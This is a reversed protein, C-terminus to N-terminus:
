ILKYEKGKHLYALGEDVMAKLLAKVEDSLKEAEDVSIPFKKKFEEFFEKDVVYLSVAAVSNEKIYEELPKEAYEKAKRAEMIKETKLRNLLRDKIRRAQRKIESKQVISINKLSAELFMIKAEINKIKLELNKIKSILENVKNIVDNIKADLLNYRENIKSIIIFQIKEEGKHIAEHEEKITSKTRLEKFSSASKKLFIHKEINQSVSYGLDSKIILGKEKLRYLIARTRTYSIGLAHAIEKLKAGPNEKLFELIAKELPSVM